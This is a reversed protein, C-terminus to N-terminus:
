VGLDEYWVFRMLYKLGATGSTLRFLYNTNNRLVFEHTAGDTGGVKGSSGLLGQWILTGTSTFTSDEYIALGPTYTGNREMAIPTRATGRANVTPAEYIYATCYGDAVFEWRIHPCMGVVSNGSPITILPVVFEIDKSATANLGALSMVSWRFSEGEHLQHHDFDMFVPINSIADTPGILVRLGREAWAGKNAPTSPAVVALPERGSDVLQTLAAGSTQNDASAAGEPLTSQEVQVPLTIDTSKIEVKPLTGVDVTWDGEQEAQVTGSIKFTGDNSQNMTM